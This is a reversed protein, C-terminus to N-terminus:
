RLAWDIFQRDVETVRYEPVVDLSFMEQDGDWEMPGAPSMLVRSAPAYPYCNPPIPDNIPWTCVHMRGTEPHPGKSLLYHVLEHGAVARAAFEGAAKTPDLLVESAGLQYEGAGGQDGTDACRVSVESAESVHWGFSQVEVAVWERQPSVCDVISVAVDRGGLPMDMPATGCAVLLVLATLLWRM